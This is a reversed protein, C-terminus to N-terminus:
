KKNLMHIPQNRMLKFAILFGILAVVVAGINMVIFAKNFANKAFQSVLEQTSASFTSLTQMAHSSHSLVGELDGAQIGSTEPSSLLQNQMKERQITAFLTGFIALGITSGFQRLSAIFGSVTGRKEPPADNLISVFTPTMILPIGFGFPVLTVFLLWIHPPPSIFLLFFISFFVLAFGTSVPLRPGYHDVLYGGLASAILLPANAFFAYFGAKTPSFNLIEQFYIAWFVTVMTLFQICFVCGSGALVNKKVIVKLDLIPHEVKRETKFLIIPLIIGIAILCLTKWSLWGWNQAQMFATTLSGIGISLTIFGLWDFSEKNGKIKPVFIQALVLGIIAIPINVWFIYRWSLYQTLSGGILPGVALFISSISILIGTARGRQHSPFTSFIIGQTSPILFAGGIGQLARSLILTLGSHSLGCLFSAFAFFIIGLGYAKKLGWIDGLRGGGLVLAALVLIYSNVIWQLDLDPIQLDRQITPLAVPLVTVDIFIMSMAMTMALLVWWKHFGDSSM